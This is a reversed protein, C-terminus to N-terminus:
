NSPKNGKRKILWECSCYSCCLPGFLITCCVLCIVIIVMIAYNKWNQFIRRIVVGLDFKDIRGYAEVNEFGESDIKSGAYHLEGHLTITNGCSTTCNEIIVGQSAHIRIKTDIGSPGCKIPYARDGCQVTARREQESECTLSVTAGKRCSYCGSLIGSSVACESDDIILQDSSWGETNVQLMIEASVM